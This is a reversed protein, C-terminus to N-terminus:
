LGPLILGDKRRVTGDEYLIYFTPDELAQNGIVGGLQGGTRKSAPIALFMVAKGNAGGGLWEAQVPQGKFVISFAIGAVFSIVVLGVIRTRTM